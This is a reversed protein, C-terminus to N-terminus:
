EAIDGVVQERVVVGFSSTVPAGLGEALTRLRADESVVGVATRDAPDGHALVGALVAAEHTSDAVRAAEAVSAEGAQYRAVAERVRMAELGERLARRTTTSRDEDPLDAVADLETKEESPLWASVRRSM